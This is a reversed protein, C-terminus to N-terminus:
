TKTLSDGASMHTWSENDTKGVGAIGRMIVVHWFGHNDGRGHMLYRMGKADSFIVVQRHSQTRTSRRQRTLCRAIAQKDIDAAAKAVYGHFLLAANDANFRSQGYRLDIRAQRQIAALYTRVGGTFCVLG